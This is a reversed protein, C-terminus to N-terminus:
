DPCDKLQLGIRMTITQGSSLEIASQLVATSILTGSDDSATTLFLNSIPGWSGTTARFAVIPSTAIYHDEEFNIAFDGDSSVEAREYGDGAPEGILDNITDDETVTLRNDLGLYYKEPIVTSNQGGTFAAMLLFEEGDLHLLNLINRQEYLLTGDVDLKQIELVKMIGHWNQNAM